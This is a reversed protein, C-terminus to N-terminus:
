SEFIMSPRFITKLEELMKMKIMRFKFQQFVLNEPIPYKFSKDNLYITNLVEDLPGSLQNSIYWLYDLKLVSSHKEYYDASEIKKYKQAKPGGESLVVYQLRTGPAVPYGRRYMKEALQIQAPLWRVYYENETMAEKKRMKEEREKEDTPLLPVKYDGVKGKWVGKEDKFPEVILNDKDDRNVSGVAQSIIFDKYDYSSACMRNLTDVITYIIDDRHERNFVMLVIKSYLDRAFKCNDRRSLIVGKKQIENSVKGDKACKLSMYRKKSFIVFRWYIKNEFELAMPKPFMASVKEAVEIAYNWIDEATIKEDSLHPFSIYNSDTDGYVLKGGFQRPIIKAVKEISRRGIATTCMAGPMFPLYGERVGMAGYGSNASIKEALQRKDFVTARIQLEARRKEDLDVAKLQENVEKLMKKTKKRATLLDKLMSPMVGMPEKLYRYKRHACIINNPKPIKQREKIYPKLQLVKRNVVDKMEEKEIGKCRDREQRLLKLKEKKQDIIKTLENRRIIKPDHECNVHDEWEIVHCLEDPIKPDIALTSFDINYAIIISPYLSSFDFPVTREYIGPVPDFVKAGVYRENAGTKFVNKEVTIHEHTCKKYIQSFVKIQQGKTYLYIMPVNCIRAMSSLGIWTQLKEFLMNMLVSDQVCYNGCMSIAKRGKRGGQMGLRYCKFIGQPSLDKKTIGKGLFYPAVFSLKYTSFKYDKKVVSLLDVFLIGETDLYRFDQNRFASSSWHVEAEASHGAKTLGITDFDSLCLNHGARDIMYPIDFGFINYGVMVNPREQRVFDAFGVLLDFETKYEIASVDEDLTDFDVNGLTLLYKQYKEPPDGSRSVICSIQFIEDKGIKSDPMKAPNSSNVEIDFGIIKPKPISENHVEKTDKWKVVYEHDCITEMKEEDVKRGQFEIWGSTPVQRISTYQLIAGANDEHINLKIKGIGSIYIPWRLKKVMEVIDEECYMAYMLYPFKKQQGKEDLNAYYLKRRWMLSKMYPKVGIRRLIDDIKNTVVCVKSDTWNIREPSPLEVYVYPTFDTIKVCVNENKDNLGYARIITIGEKEKDVHWDYSFFQSTIM